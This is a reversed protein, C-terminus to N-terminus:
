RQFGGLSQSSSELVIEPPVRGALGMVRAKGAARVHSVETTDPFDGKAGKETATERGM